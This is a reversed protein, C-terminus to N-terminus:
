RFFDAVPCTFDPLHPDGTIADGPQFFRIKEGKTHVTVTQFAQDVVWVVKVGHRLYTAIKMRIKESVDSPSLIEVALIPPGFFLTRRKLTKTKMGPSVFAVDIGVTSKSKGNLIFGAEGSVIKGRPERRTDLWRWLIHAIRSETTSHEPNRVTMRVEDDPDGMEYLKGDLLFREVGDDPLDLFEEITMLKPPASLVAM